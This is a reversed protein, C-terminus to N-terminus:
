SSWDGNWRRFTVSVLKHPDPEMLTCAARCTETSGSEIIVINTTEPHSPKIQINTKM